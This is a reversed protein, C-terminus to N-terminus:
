LDRLFVRIPLQTPDLHVPLCSFQTGISKERDKGDRRVQKQGTRHPRLSRRRGRSLSVALPLSPPLSSIAGTYYTNPLRTPSNRPPAPLYTRSPVFTPVIFHSADVVPLADALLLMMPAVGVPIGEVDESAIIIWTHIHRHRNKAAFKAEPAKHRGQTRSNEENTALSFGNLPTPLYTPGIQVLKSFFLLLSFVQM